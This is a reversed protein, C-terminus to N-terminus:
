RRTRCAVGFEDGLHDVGTAVALYAGGIALGASGTGLTGKPDAGENSSQPFPRLRRMRRTAADEV